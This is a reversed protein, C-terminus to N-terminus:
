EEEEEMSVRQRRQTGWPGNQKAALTWHFFVLFFFFNWFVLSFFVKGVQWFISVSIQPCFVFTISKKLSSVLPAWANYFVCCSFFIWVVESAFSHPCRTQSAPQLLSQILTLPTASNDATCCHMTPLSSTADRTNLAIGAVCASAVDSCGHVCACVYVRLDILSVTPISYNVSRIM